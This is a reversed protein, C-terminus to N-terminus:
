PRLINRPGAAATSTVSILTRQSSGALVVQLDEEGTKAKQCDKWIMTAHELCGPICQVGEKHVVRDVNMNTMVYKMVRSAMVSFFRKGEVNQLSNLRFQKIATFNLEMPIYTRNVKRWEKCNQRSAVQLLPHLIKIANLCQTYTTYPLSTTLETVIFAQMTQVHLIDHCMGWPLGGPVNLPPRLPPLCLFNQFLLTLIHVPYLLEECLTHQQPCLPTSQNSTSGGHCGVVWRRSQPTLHNM